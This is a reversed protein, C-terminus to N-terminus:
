DWAAREAAIDVEIEAPTRRTHAPVPHTQLWDLLSIAPLPQVPELRVAPQGRNAIIVEEGALARKVLSSLRNKAELTNVQM